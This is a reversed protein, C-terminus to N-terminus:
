LREIKSKIVDLALSPFYDALLNVFEGGENTDIFSSDKLVGDVSNLSNIYDGSDDNKLVDFFKDSFNSWLSNNSVNLVIENINELAQSKWHDILEKEFANALIYDGKIIILDKSVLFSILENLKEKPCKVFTTRIIEIQYSYSGTAGVKKFLSVAILLKIAGIDVNVQGIIITLLDIVSKVIDEEEVDSVIVSVLKNLDGDLTNYLQSVNTSPFKSNFINHFVTKRINEDIFINPFVKESKKSNPEITVLRLETSFFDKAIREHIEESCNDIIVVKLQNLNTLDAVKNSIDQYTTGKLDYYLISNELEDAEFKGNKRFVEYVLRTKGSGSVGAIRIPGKYNILFSRLKKIIDELEPTFVFSYSHYRDLQQNIKFPSWKEIQHSAEANIADKIANYLDNALEKRVAKRTDYNTENLNYTIGWRFGILDVPLEEPSGFADNMVALTRYTGKKAWAYGTELLVNPNPSLKRKGKPVGLWSHTADEELLEADLWEKASTFTLDVIVMDSETSKKLMEDILLPTGPTKRFGFDLTVEINEDKLKQIAIEIAKQIFGKGYKDETDM